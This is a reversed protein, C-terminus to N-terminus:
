QGAGEMLRSYLILEPRYEFHMGDFHHWKGGWIFGRREMTEVLRWPVKSQYAGVDGETAGTWRWYGGLAANVDIAIGYSHASLRETGAIRRWNYSGGVERFFPAIEANSLDLDAIAAALQCSVGHRRTVRFLAPGATVTELDREVAAPTAGYLLGFFHGNRARGPDYFPTLRLDLNRSLPYVITFQDGVTPKKIMEPAARATPADADIATGGYMIRSQSAARVHVNPYALGIAEKWLAQVPTIPLPEQLFDRSM